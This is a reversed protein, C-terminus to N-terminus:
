GCSACVGYLVIEHARLTFGHPVLTSVAVCGQVDFVKKCADCVFHHHHALHATEYRLPEGVIEVLSVDGAEILAKVCRYVTAIGLSPVNKSARELVEHVTLPRAADKLVAQINERQQTKRQM